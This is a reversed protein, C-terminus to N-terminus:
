ISIKLSVKSPIKKNERQNRQLNATNQKSKIHQSTKEIKKKNIKAKIANHDSFNSQVVRINTFM